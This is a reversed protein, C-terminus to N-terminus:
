VDPIGREASRGKRAEEVLRQLYRIIIL